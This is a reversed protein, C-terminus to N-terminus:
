RKSKIKQGTIEIDLASGSSEYITHRENKLNLMECELGTLKFDAIFIIIFTNIRHASRDPTRNRYSCCIQSKGWADQGCMHGM